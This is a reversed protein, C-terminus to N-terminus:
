GNVGSLKDPYSILFIVLPFSLGELLQRFM